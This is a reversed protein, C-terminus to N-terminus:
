LILKLLNDKLWATFQKFIEDTEYYRPEDGEADYERGLDNCNVLYPSRKNSYFFQAGPSTPKKCGGKYILYLRPKKDMKSQIKVGGIFWSKDEEWNEGIYTYLSPGSEDSYVSIEMKPISIRNVGAIDNSQENLSRQVRCFYIQFDSGSIKSVYKFREKGHGYTDFKFNIGPVNWNKEEAKRVIQECIEDFPFQRSIPYLFQTNDSKIVDM